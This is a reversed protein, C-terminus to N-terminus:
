ISQYNKSFDTVGDALTKTTHSSHTLTSLNVGLFVWYLPFFLAIVGLGELFVGSVCCLLMTRINKDHRYFSSLLIRYLLYVLIILYTFGRLYQNDAFSVLLTSRSIVSLFLNDTSVEYAEFGASGSQFGYYKNIVSALLSLILLFLALKTQLNYFKNNQQHKPKLFILLFIASLVSASSLNVCLLGALLMWYRHKYNYISLIIFAVGLAILVSRGSLFFPLTFPLLRIISPKEKYIPRVVLLIFCLLLFLAAYAGLWDDLLLFPSVAILRVIHVYELGSGDENDLSTEGALIESAHIIQSQFGDSASESDPFFSFDLYFTGIAFVVFAVLYLLFQKELTNLRKM